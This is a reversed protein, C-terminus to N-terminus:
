CGSGHAKLSGAAEASPAARTDAPKARPVGRSRRYRWISGPPYGGEATGVHGGASTSSSRRTPTSRSAAHTARSATVTSLVGDRARAGPRGSRLRAARALRRLLRRPHLHSRDAVRHPHTPRTRTSGSSPPAAPPSRGELRRSSRLRRSSASATPSEALREPSSYPLHAHIHFALQEATAASIGDVSRGPVPAGAPALTPGAPDACRGARASRRPRGCRRGAM